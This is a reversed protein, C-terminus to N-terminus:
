EDEDDFDVDYRGEENLGFDLAFMGDGIREVRPKITRVAKGGQPKTQVSGDGNDIAGGDTTSLDPAPSCPEDTETLYLAVTQDHLRYLKRPDMWMTERGDDASMARLQALKTKANKLASIAYEGVTRHRPEYANEDRQHVCAGFQLACHLAFQRFTYSDSEEIKYTLGTPM